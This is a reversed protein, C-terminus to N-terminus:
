HDISLLASPVVDDELDTSGWTRLVAMMDEDRRLRAIAGPTHSCATKQALADAQAEQTTLSAMLLTVVEMWGGQVALHVATFQKSTVASIPCGVEHILYQVVESHGRHAAAHLPTWGAVSPSCAAQSPKALEDDVRQAAILLRIVDLHGRVAALYVPTQGKENILRSTDGGHHLLLAKVAQVSYREDAVSAAAHLLTNQSPLRPIPLNLADRPVDELLASIPLKQKIAAHIRLFDDSTETCSSLYITCAVLVVVFTIINM